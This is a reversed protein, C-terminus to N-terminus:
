EKRGMVEALQAQLELIRDAMDKVIFHEQVHRPREGMSREYDNMISMNMIRNMMRIDHLTQEAAHQRHVLDLFAPEMESPTYDQYPKPATYSPHVVAPRRMYCHKGDDEEWYETFGHRAYWDRTAEWSLSSDDFPGVRLRIPEGGFNKVVEQLLKTGLGMGRYEIHIAIARIFWGGGRQETPRPDMQLLAYGFQGGTSDELSLEEVPVIHLSAAVQIAKKRKACDECGEYTMPVGCDPCPDLEAM